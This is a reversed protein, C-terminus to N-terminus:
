LLGEMVRVSREWYTSQDKRAENIAKNILVSFNDTPKLEISLVKSNAWRDFDKHGIDLIYGSRLRLEHGHYSGSFFDQECLDIYDCNRRLWAIINNM